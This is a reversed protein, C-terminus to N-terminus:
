NIIIFINELAVTTKDCINSIEDNSLNIDYDDNEAYFYPNQASIAHVTFVQEDPNRPNDSTINEYYSYEYRIDVEVICDIQNINIQCKIKIINSGQMRISHSQLDATQVSQIINEVIQGYQEDTIHIKTNFVM